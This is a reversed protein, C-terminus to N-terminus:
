VVDKSYLLGIKWSFSFIRRAEWMVPAERTGWYYLIQRSICSIPTWDRPWSSGRSFSIAVWELIRAQSIGHISSGPPSCDMPDCLTPRSEAVWIEAVHKRQVTTYLIIGDFKKNSINPTLDANLIIWLMHPEKSPSSSVGRSRHLSITLSYNVSLSLTKKM